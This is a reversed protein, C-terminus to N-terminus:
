NPCCPNKATQHTHQNYQRSAEKRSQLPAAFHWPPTPESRRLSGSKTQGKRVPGEQQCQSCRASHFSCAKPIGSSLHPPRSWTSLSPSAGKLPLPSPVQWYLLCMQPHSPCLSSNHTDGPNPDSSSPPLQLPNFHSLTPGKYKLILNQHSVWTNLPYYSLLRSTLPLKVQPGM